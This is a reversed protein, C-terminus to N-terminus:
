DENHIRARSECELIYDKMNLDDTNIKMRIGEPLAAWEAQGYPEFEFREPCEFPVHPPVTCCGSFITVIASITLCRVM